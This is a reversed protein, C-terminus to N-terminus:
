RLNELLFQTLAEEDNGEGERAAKGTPDAGAPAPSAEPQKPAPPAEPAPAPPAAKEAPAAEATPAAPVEPAPVAPAAPVAVKPAEGRPADAAPAAEAAQASAASVGEARAEAPAQAAAGPNVRAIFGNQVEYAVDGLIVSDHYHEGGAEAVQDLTKVKALLGAIDAEEGAVRVFRVAPELAYTRKDGRITMMAGSFDIKGQMMWSDLMEQSVFLYDAM